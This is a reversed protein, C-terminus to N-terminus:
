VGGVKPGGPNVQGRIFQGAQQFIAGPPSNLAAAAASIPEKIEQNVGAAITVGPTEIVQGVKGIVDAPTNVFGKSVAGGSGKGM